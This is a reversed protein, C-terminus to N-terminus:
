RGSRGRKRTPIAVDGDDGDDEDGHGDGVHESVGVFASMRRRLQRITRDLREMDRNAKAAAMEAVDRDVLAQALEVAYKHLQKCRAQLARRVDEETRAGNAVARYVELDVDFPANRRAKAGRPIAPPTPFEGARPAARGQQKKAPKGGAQAM